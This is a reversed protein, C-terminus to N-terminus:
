EEESESEEEYAELREIEYDLVANNLVDCSYCDEIGDCNCTENETITNTM